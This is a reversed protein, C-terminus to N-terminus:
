NGYTVVEDVQLGSVVEVWDDGQAGLRVARWSGEALKVLTLEGQQTVAAPPIVVGLHEGVQLTVAQWQGPVLGTDAPLYLRVRQTGTRQEVTPFVRLQAPTVGAVTANAFTAIAAAYTAPVDVHIRLEAPDFGSMLPTGPQVLEGPEVWRASVVGAYPAKVETYSLQEQARALAATASRQQAKASDLAAQARDLEAEPVLKQTVLRQVRDFEQQAALLGADSAAVQAEAQRVLQYQEVSTLTVITAGAPVEDGVDVWVREVRGSVQASVTAANTAEVVGQLQLYDPLLQQKAVATDNAYSPAALLGVMVVWLGFTQQALAKM